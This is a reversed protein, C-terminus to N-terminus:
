SIWTERTSITYSKFPTWLFWGKMGHQGQNGVGWRWEACVLFPAYASFSDFQNGDPARSETNKIHTRLGSAPQMAWTFLWLAFYASAIFWLNKRALKM